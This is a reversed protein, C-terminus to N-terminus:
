CKTESTLHPSVIHINLLLSSDGQIGTDKNSMQEIRENHRCKVLSLSGSLGGGDGWGVWACVCVFLLVTLFHMQFLVCM